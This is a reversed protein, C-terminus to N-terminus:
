SVCPLGHAGDTGKIPTSLHIKLVELIPDKNREAAAACLRDGDDVWDDTHDGLVAHSAM